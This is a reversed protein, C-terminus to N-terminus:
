AAKASATFTAANQKVFDEMSVPRKGTLTFVDPSLRDYRGARHLHAMTVLHDVVHNSLGRGLLGDRWQETVSRGTGGVRGAAGTVLIPNAM